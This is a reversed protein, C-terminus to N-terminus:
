WDAPKQAHHEALSDLVEERDNEAEDMAAWVDDVCEVEQALDETLFYITLDNM